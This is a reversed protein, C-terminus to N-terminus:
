QSRRRTRTREPASALRLFRLGFVSSAQTKLLKRSPTRIEVRSVSRSHLHSHHHRRRRNIRRRCLKCFLSNPLTSVMVASFLLFKISLILMLNNSPKNADRAPRRLPHVPCLQRRRVISHHRRSLIRNSSHILTLCQPSTAFPKLRRCVSLPSHHRRAQLGVQPSTPPPAARCHSTPSSFFIGQTFKFLM